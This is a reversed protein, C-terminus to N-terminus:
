AFLADLYLRIQPSRVWQGPVHNNDVDCGTMDLAITDSTGDPRLLILVDTFRPIENCVFVSGVERLQNLGVWLESLQTPTLTVSRVLTGSNHEVWYPYRCAVGAAPQYPVPRNGKGNQWPWFALDVSPPCTPTAPPKPPLVSTQRPHMAGIPPDPRAILAIVAVVTIGGVIFVGVALAQWKRVRIGMGAM